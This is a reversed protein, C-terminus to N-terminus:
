WVRKKYGFSFTKLIYWFSMCNVLILVKVNEINISRLHAMTILFVKDKQLKKRRSPEFFKKKLILVNVFSKICPKNKKEM